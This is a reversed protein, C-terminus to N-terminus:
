RMAKKLSRNGPWDALVPASAKDLEGASLTSTMRLLARWRKIPDTMKTKPATTPNGKNNSLWGLGTAMSVGMTM